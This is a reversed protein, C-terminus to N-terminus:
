PHEIESRSLMTKDPPGMEGADPEGDVVPPTRAPITSPHCRGRPYESRDPRGLGDFLVRQGGHEICTSAGHQVPWRRECPEVQAPEVETLDVHGPWSGEPRPPDLEPRKVQETVHAGVVHGHVPAHRGFRDHSRDPGFRGPEAIRASELTATAADTPQEIVCVDRAEHRPGRKVLDDIVDVLPSPSTRADQPSEGLLTGRARTRGLAPVLLAEFCQDSSGCARREPALHHGAAVLGDSPHVEAIGRKRQNDLDVAHDM